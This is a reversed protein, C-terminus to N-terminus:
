APSDDSAAQSSRSRTLVRARASASSASWRDCTASAELRVVGRCTRCRWCPSWAITACVAGAIPLWAVLLLWSGSADERAHALRLQRIRHAALRHDAGLFRNARGSVLAAVANRPTDLLRQLTARGRTPAQDPPDRRVTTPLRPVGPVGHARALSA